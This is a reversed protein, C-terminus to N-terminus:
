ATPYALSDPIGNELGNILYVGVHGRENIGVPIVIILIVALVILITKIKNKSIKMSGIREWGLLLYM